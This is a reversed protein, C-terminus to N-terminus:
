QGSAILRLGVTIREIAVVLAIMLLGAFGFIAFWIALLLLAALGFCFLLLASKM